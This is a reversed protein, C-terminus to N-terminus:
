DDWIVLASLGSLIRLSEKSLNYSGSLNVKELRTLTTLPSIDSIDSNTWTLERLNAACASLPSIDRAFPWAGFYTNYRLVELATFNRTIPELVAPYGDDSLSLRTLHVLTSLHNLDYLSTNHTRDHHLLTIQGISLDRLGTLGSLEQISCGERKTIYLGNLSLSTLQTAGSIVDLSKLTPEDIHLERLSQIGLIESPVFLQANACSFDMELRHLQTFKSLVPMPIPDIPSSNGIGISLTRIHDMGTPIQIGDYLDIFSCGLTTASDKVAKRWCRCVLLMMERTKSCSGKPVHAIHEIIDPMQTASHEAM